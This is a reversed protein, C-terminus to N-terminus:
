TLLGESDKRTRRECGEAVVVEVDGGSWKCMVDGGSWRWVVEAGSGYWVVWVVWGCVRVCVFGCVCVEVGSECWVVEVGGVCWGQAVEM